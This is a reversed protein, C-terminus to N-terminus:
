STIEFTVVVNTQPTTPATSKGIRIGILDGAVVTPAGANGTGTSATNNVTCQLTTDAGNKRVVYSVTTGGTGAVCKLRMNRLTGARPIPVKIEAVIETALAFGTAIFRSSTATTLAQAGFEIEVPGDAMWGSTGTGSEKYLFTTAVGGGTNVAVSGIRSSVNGIPTTACLAFNPNPGATGENRVGVNTTPVQIVTSTAGDGLNGHCNAFGTLAAVSTKFNIANTAGKILNHNVLVNEVPNPDATIELGTSFIGGTPVLMNGCYLWNQGNANTSRLQGGFGAQATNDQFVMNNLVIVQNCTELRIGVMTLVNVDSVSGCLNGAIVIEEPIGPADAYILLPDRHDGNDLSYILNDVILSRTYNRLEVVRLQASFGSITLINGKLIFETPGFFSDVCGSGTIINHAVQTKTPPVRPTEIGSLSFSAPNFNFVINGHIIWRNACSSGGGAEWDINQGNQVDETSDMWNYGVLVKDCGRTGEINSRSKTAMNFMCYFTRTDTIARTNNIDGVYRIASGIIPGFWMQNIECDQPPAVDLATSDSYQILHNQSAPQPNIIGDGDMRFNHFFIRKTQNRLEFAWQGQLAFDGQMRLWSSYGDGMFVINQKNNLIFIAAAGPTASKYIAYGLPAAPLYVIGGGAAQADTIALNIGNNCSTVGDGVCNYPPKTINFVKLGTLNQKVWGRNGVVDALSQKLFFERPTGPYSGPRNWSSGLTGEAAISNPDFTESRWFVGLQSLKETDFVRSM